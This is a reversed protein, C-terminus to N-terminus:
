GKLGEARKKWYGAILEIVEIAQKEHDAEISDFKSFTHGTQNDSLRDKSYGGAVGIMYGREALKPASSTFKFIYYAYDNYIMKDVFELEELTDGCETPYMLWNKMESYAIKEQTLGIAELLDTNGTGELIRIMRSADFDVLEGALERAGDLGNRAMTKLLFLKCEPDLDLTRTKEIEKFIADNNVYTTLDLTVAFSSVVEENECGNESVFKNLLSMRKEVGETIIAKDINSALQLQPDNNLIILAACDGIGNYCSSFVEALTHYFLEMKAKFMPYSELNTVFPLETCTEEFLVCFVMNKFKDNSRYLSDLAYPIHQTDLEGARDALEGLFNDNIDIEWANIANDMDAQAANGSIIQKLTEFNRKKKKFLM